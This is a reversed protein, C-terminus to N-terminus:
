VVLFSPVFLISHDAPLVDGNMKYGLCSLAPRWRHVTHKRRVFFIIPTLLSYQPPYLSPVLRQRRIVGKSADIVGRGLGRALCNIVDLLLVGTWCATGAAASRRSYQLWGDDWFNIGRYALPNKTCTRSKSAYALYVRVGLSRNWFTLTLSRWM